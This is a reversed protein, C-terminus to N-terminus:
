PSQKKNEDNKRRYQKEARVFRPEFASDREDDNSSDHYTEQHM